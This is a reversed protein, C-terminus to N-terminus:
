KPHRGDPLIKMNDRWDRGWKSPFGSEAWKLLFQRPNEAPWPRNLVTVFPQWGKNSWNLWLTYSKFKPDAM